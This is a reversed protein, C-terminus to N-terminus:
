QVVPKESAVHLFNLDQMGRAYTMNEQHIHTFSFIQSEIDSKITNCAFTNLGVEVTLTDGYYM